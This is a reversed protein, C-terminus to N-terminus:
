ICLFGGVECNSDSLDPVDYFFSGIVTIESVTM